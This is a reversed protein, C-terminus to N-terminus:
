NELGQEYAMCDKDIALEYNGAIQSETGGADKCRNLVTKCRKKAENYLATGRKSSIDNSSTNFIDLGFLNSSDSSFDFEMDLLSSMNNNSDNTATSSPDKIMDAIDDLLSRTQTNDKTKDLELEAETASM